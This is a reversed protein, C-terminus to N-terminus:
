LFFSQLVTVIPITFGGGMQQVTSNGGNAMTSFLSWGGFLMAGGVIIAIGGVTANKGKEQQGWIAKAFKFGAFLILLVGVIALVVGGENKLFNEFNKLATDLTWGATTVPVSYLFGM